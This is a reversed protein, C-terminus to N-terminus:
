RAKLVLPKPSTVMGAMRQNKGDRDSDGLDTMAIEALQMLREVVEPHKLAVNSNEQLDKGLDYLAMKKGPGEMIVQDWKIQEVELPLHLKWKGSRVAQLQRRFYYYFADHPTKEDGTGSILPWINKGDIVRDQPPETGALTAFTPLLDLTSCLEDSETGAPIKGPWRMVCPVRMGGEFTTGKWGSFPANSGGINKQAGNDSAFILLTKGGIGLETLIDVIKGTSWDIEEVADGYIGNSSQGRFSDGVHIPVHPMTHALYVFFPQHKNTRIFSIIEETYRHTISNQDVPAEVVEENRVFPLPPQDPFYRNPGMDNSYPIGFYYDFGQQTPLFEPQDGLHWKGICATAYGQTKLIEAITTEDPNLGRKAIPLLVWHQETDEHMNLRRPYCGTLLSARSPTCVGSTVYFNTFRKGEKAIRDIKPTRHKTSGFCGIDAYGLDDCFILIINPLSKPKDIDGSTGCGGSVM